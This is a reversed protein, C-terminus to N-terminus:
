EHLTRRSEIKQLLNTTSTNYQHSILVLKGGISEVFEKGTIPRNRYDEGKVMVDPCLAKIIFLLEDEDDFLIIWDVDPILTLLTKRDEENCIPRSEGKLAHISMDSNLGIVLVDGLQHAQKLLDLHGIHLLDFCGNTFVIKKNKYHKRLLPLVHKSKIVKNSIPLVKKIDDINMVSTGRKEVSLGACKNAFEISEEDSLGCVFGIAMMATVIDGAGTVDTVQRCYSPQYFPDKGRRLYIMGQDGCTILLREVALKTLIFESNKKIYEISTETSGYFREFEKINPKILYCGDYKEINDSKPDVITRKNHTKALSFMEELLSANLFGKEYDSLIIVDYKDIISQFCKIIENSDPYEYYCERDVRLLQHGINSLFRTKVTTLMKNDRFIYKSSINNDYLITLLIDGYSDTGICGMLDVEIELSHINMCVNAAGGLNYHTQTNSLVPIPAEPSFRDINGSVYQDLMIDGIVLIKKDISLLGSIIYKM